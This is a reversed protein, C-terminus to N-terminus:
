SRPVHIGVRESPDTTELSIGVAEALGAIGGYPTCSDGYGYVILRDCCRRLWEMTPVARGPETELIRLPALLGVSFPPATAFLRQSDFMDGVVFNAAFGRMLRRAHRIRRRRRDIGYPVTGRSAIVIKRLLAGNGCGLDLVAGPRDALARSALRVIPAQVEDMREASPFENDRYYWRSRVNLWDRVGHGSLAM